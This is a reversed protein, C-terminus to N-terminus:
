INMEYILGDVEVKRRNPKSPWAPKSMQSRWTQYAKELQEVIEPKSNALNRSEGIDNDLDFLWTNDYSRVLKWNGQRVAINPGNSWFLTEHPAGTSQGNVFPALDVGDLNLDSPVKIGAAACITPFLDLTSTPHDYVTDAQFKGSMKVIMPVRIGGEFLFLKGLKLPGNSQVGTYIPGGNDNVFIVLTNESLGHKGIAAVIAGVADDLASTMAYYDRKTPDLENPFRDQYKKTAEIPTHVANFPVYAFFPKDQNAGIFKVTERAIADTLYDSEILPSKDRMITTHFPQPAKAPFFSHAGALFGYFEDFGRAQPHFQPQTGLHWKGFMGTVYGAQKLVDTMTVVSPDLGRHLRHTIAGGATNFEFGFRQQYRGSMLGARSPSCSAATVYANSFRVGQKGLADINPTPIKKSGYLSIDGYGLDDSFLLVINPPRKDGTTVAPITSLLKRKAAEGEPNAPFVPENSVEKAAAENERARRRKALAQAENQTVFGDSDADMRNFLAENKVEDPGLRGDGNKDAKTFASDTSGQKTEGQALLMCPSLLFAILFLIFRNM